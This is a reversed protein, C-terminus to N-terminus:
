SYSIQNYFIAFQFPSYVLGQVYPQTFFYVASNPVQLITALQTFITYAQTTDAIQQTSNTEFPIKELLATLTANEVHNPESAVNTGMDLFQQYIPDAWDACWGVGVIPPTTQPSSESADYVATTVGVPAISIGVQALDAQVISILGLTLSNAPVVYWYPVPPLLGNPASPSGLTTGNAMITYYGMQNMALSLYNAAENVNYAYLPTNQPNDLPGWGPPVPPLFLEALATGNFSYLQDLILTYNVSHVMAQRFDTNNTPFRQTNLGQALDCLPYTAIHFIQDFAYQSKYAYGSYMESFLNASEFSIQAKNTGFDGILTSDSSGYRIIVTPIIAPQIWHSIENSPTSVSATQVVTLGNAWYNPNANLVITSYPSVSAYEYPGSGPMLDKNNNGTNFNSNITNNAVGGNADIWVPDVLAGWQPPLALLLLSYPQILNIQFTTANVAVLAQHPYSVVAAQTANTAPNFNSLMQNLAAVCSNENNPVGVSALANCTGWPIVNGMPTTGNYLLLNYNSFGVTTPANMYNVRIFSFWAVYANIPDKNSFWTNPRMAFTYNEFTSSVTWSSALSPVVHLGDSGNYQVLGQFVQAFHGDVTFFGYHPDISDFPGTPSEDVLQSSNSPTPGTPGTTTTTTPSTSTTTTTTPTTSTTVTTPTTPTTSTTTITTTPTTSSSSSTTSYYYIGVAAAIVLIVVIGISAGRSIATRSLSPSIKM